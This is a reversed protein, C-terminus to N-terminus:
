SESKCSELFELYSVIMKQMARDYSIGEQLVLRNAEIMITAKIAEEKEKDPCLQRFNKANELQMWCKRTLTATWIERVRAETLYVEGVNLVMGQKNQNM